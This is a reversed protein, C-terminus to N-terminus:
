DITTPLPHSATEAHAAVLCVPLCALRCAPQGGWCAAPKGLLHLLAVWAYGFVGAFGTGSSWM